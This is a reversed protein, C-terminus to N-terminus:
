FSQLTRTGATQEITRLLTDKVTLGNSPSTYSTSNKGCFPQQLPKTVVPQFSNTTCCVTVASKVVSIETRVAAHDYSQSNPQHSTNYSKFSSICPPRLGLQQIQPLAVNANLAVFIINCFCVHVLLICSLTV